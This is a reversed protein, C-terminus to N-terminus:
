QLSSEGIFMLPTVLIKLHIFSIGIPLILNFPQLSLDSLQNIVTLFFDTYKFCFLLGLNVVISFTLLLDKKTKIKQKYILNSIIFDTIAAIIVLIVFNGCAKYFFYLSFLTVVFLRYPKHKYVFQYIMLFFVFFYLFFGSNLLLPDDANYLLSNSLAELSFDKM